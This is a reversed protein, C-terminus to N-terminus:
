ESPCAQGQPLSLEKVNQMNLIRLWFKDHVRLLTELFKFFHRKSSEQMYINRSLVILNSMSNRNLMHFPEVHSIKQNASGERV